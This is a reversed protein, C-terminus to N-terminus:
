ATGVRLKGFSDDDSVRDPDAIAHFSVALVTKDDKVYEVEPAGTNFCSPVQYQLPYDGEPSLHDNRALLAIQEVLSGGRYLKVSKQGVATTPGTAAQNLALAYNELSMTAINFTIELGEESRVAKIPATVQDARLEVVTQPHGVKVGGETYGVKTWFGSGAGSFGAGETYVDTLDPFPTGVPAYFIDAPGAIIEYPKVNATSM